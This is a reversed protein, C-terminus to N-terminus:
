GTTVVGADVIMCQGTMMAAADSALFLTPGVMDEPRMFSQLCQRALFATKADPTAWMQEQKETFVWGPAIANVRIGQLGFGRALSRTMGTIGANASVYPVLNPDGIMYAISAYNIIAGKPAMLTAAKQCGFFYAKLNVAQMDDWIEPTIDAVDYRMDNAANNVVAKFLGHATAAKDMAAQLANTDTVDCQIFLPRHKATKALAEVLASADSRGVFAVKAGQAVFGATLAAGIGNGGGTIFVSADELDPHVATM